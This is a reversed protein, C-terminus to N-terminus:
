VSVEEAYERWSDEDERLEDHSANFHRAILMPVKFRRGCDEVQCEYRIEAADGAANPSDPESVEKEEYEPEDMRRLEGPGAWGYRPSM